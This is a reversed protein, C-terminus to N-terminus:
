PWSYIGKLLITMRVNKRFPEPHGKFEIYSGQLDLIEINFNPVVDTGTLTAIGSGGTIIEPPKFPTSSINTVYATNMQDWIDASIGSLGLSSISASAGSIQGTVSSSPVSSTDTFFIANAHEPYWILPDSSTYLYQLRGYQKSSMDLWDLEVRKGAIFNGWTFYGISTHTLVVASSKSADPITYQWPKWDFIYSNIKM